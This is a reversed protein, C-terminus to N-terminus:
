FSVTLRAVFPALPELALFATFAGLDVDLDVDAGILTDRCFTSYRRILSETRLAEEELRGFAVGALVGTRLLFVSVGELTRSRVSALLPFAFNACVPERVPTVGREARAKAAFIGIM